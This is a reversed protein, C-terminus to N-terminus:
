DSTYLLCVRHNREQNQVRQPVPNLLAVDVAEPEVKRHCESTTAVVRVVRVMREQDRKACVRNQRPDLEDGFRPVQAYVPPARALEWRREGLPVVMKPVGHAGEPQRIDLPRSLERRAVPYALQRGSKGAGLVQEACVISSRCGRDVVDSRVVTVGQGVRGDIGVVVDAGTVLAVLAGDVGRIWMFGLLSM